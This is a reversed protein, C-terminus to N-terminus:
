QKTFAGSAATYVYVSGTPTYKYTTNGTKSWNKDTVGGQVITTFLPNTDSAAANSASDLTTPWTDTGSALSSMHALQIGSRVAGVAGDEAASQAQTRLDTYKPVVVAALLGLIVIVMILEVLTFAMNKHRSM